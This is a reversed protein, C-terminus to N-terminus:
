GGGNVEMGNIEADLAAWILAVWTYRPEDLLEVGVMAEGVFGM